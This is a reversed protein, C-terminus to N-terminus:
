IVKIKDNRTNYELEYSLTLMNEINLDIIYFSKEIEQNNEKYIEFYYNALQFNNLNEIIENLVTKHIHLFKDKNQGEKIIGVNEFDVYFEKEDESLKIKQNNKVQFVDKKYNFYDVTNKNKFYISYRETEIDEVKKKIERVTIEIHATKFKIIKGTIETYIDEELLLAKGKLSGKDIIGLQVV